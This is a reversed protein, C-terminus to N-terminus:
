LFSLPDVDVQIRVAKGPKVAVLWDRLIPQLSVERGAKVLFRRRHRGRLLSLAAPAPGLIDVGAIRPRVRGLAQATADVERERPGSVIIAALRGFPPMGAAQREAREAALFAARDGTALAAMVPHEPMHTQILVRGPHDGRGARGAVQTLLQHTRESARLDGGTLGLDADVVGVLTLRPFHHGKAIIQTGILV